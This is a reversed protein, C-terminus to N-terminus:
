LEAPADGRSVKVRSEPNIGVTLMCHKDFVREIEAVGKPGDGFKGADLVAAREEASLPAGLHEMAEIVRAAQAALPQLEVERAPALPCSVILVLASAIAAVCVHRM